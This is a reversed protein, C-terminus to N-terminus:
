GRIPNIQKILALMDGPDAYAHTNNFVRDSHEGVRSNFWVAGACPAYVERREGTHINLLYGLLGGAEVCEEVDVLPIYLGEHPAYVIQEDCFEYQVPPITIAGDLMDLTIMVNRIGQLGRQVSEPYIWNQTRLEVLMAPKGQAIAYHTLANHRPDLPEDVSRGGYIGTFSLSVFPIGFNIALEAARPITASAFVASACYWSWAHFNVVVDAADVVADTLAATIREAPDGQPDGPWKVYTNWAFDLAPGTGPERCYTRATVNEPNITPVALVTGALAAPSTEQLLRDIVAIGNVEAGHEGAVVLLVPGPREGRLVHVPISMQEDDTVQVSVTTTHGGPTSPLQTLVNAPM